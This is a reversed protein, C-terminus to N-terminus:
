NRRSLSTSFQELCGVKGAWDRWDTASPSDEPDALGLVPMWGGSGSRNPEDKSM